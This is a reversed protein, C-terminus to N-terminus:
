RNVERSGGSGMYPEAHRRHAEWNAGYREALEKSRINLLNEANRSEAAKTFNFSGTIVREGDIVMVKDHALAHAEDILVPIGANALFDASSYREGRQSRDLIVRVDVGRKAAATLAGAIPASTFSYAQVRITTKARALESIIAQTCGGDPSFYVRWDAATAVPNSISQALSPAQSREMLFAGAVTVATIGVILPTGKGSRVRRGRRDRIRSAPLSSSM